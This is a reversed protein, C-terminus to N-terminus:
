TADPHRPVQLAANISAHMHALAPEIRGYIVDPLAGSALNQQIREM